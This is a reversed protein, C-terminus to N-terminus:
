PAAFGSGNLTSVAAAGSRQGAWKDRIARKAIVYGAIRGNQKPSRCVRGVLYSACTGLENGVLGDDESGRRSGAGPSIFPGHITETRNTSSLMIPRLARRSVNELQSSLQSVANAGPASTARWMMASRGTSATTALVRSEPTLAALKRRVALTCNGFIARMASDLGPSRPAISLARGTAFWHKLLAQPGKTSALATSCVVLNCRLSNLSSVWRMTASTPLRGLRGAVRVATSSASDSSSQESPCIASIMLPSTEITALTSWNTLEDNKPSRVSIWSRRWARAYRPM